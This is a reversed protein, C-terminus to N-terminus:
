VKEVASPKNHPHVHQTTDYDPFRRAREREKERERGIERNNAGCV